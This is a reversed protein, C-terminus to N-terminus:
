GLRRLPTRQSGQPLSNPSLMADTVYDKAFRVTLNKSSLRADKAYDKAFRATLRKSNSICVVVNESKKYEKSNFVFLFGKM